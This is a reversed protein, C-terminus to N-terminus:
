ASGFITASGPPIHPGSRQSKPTSTRLERGSGSSKCIEASRRTSDPKSTRRDLPNPGLRQKPATKLQRPARDDGADAAQHRARAQALGPDQDDVLDRRARVLAPRPAGLVPVRPPQQALRRGLRPDRGVLQQDLKDGTRFSQYGTMHAASNVLWTIHYTVVCRVFIGWIAWSWGGIALLVFGLAIQWLLYTNELFRYFRSKALDPALRYQEEKRSGRVRQPSLAVRRSEVVRRPPHRAPRRRSRHERPARSADRGVRDPRRAARARRHIALDARTRAARAPQSADAHPPLGAHHGVRRHHLLAGADRHRRELQVDRAHVGRACRPPRHRPRHGTAIDPAGQRNQARDSPDTAPQAQAWWALEESRVFTALRQGDIRSSTRFEGLQSYTLVHIGQDAARAAM